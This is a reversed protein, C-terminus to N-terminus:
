DFTMGDFYLHGQAYEMSFPLSPRDAKPQSHWRSLSLPLETLNQVASFVCAGRDGESSLLTATEFVERGQLAMLRAIAKPLYHPTPPTQDTLPDWIFKDKSNPLAQMRCQTLSEYLIRADTEYQSSGPYDQSLYPNQTSSKITM